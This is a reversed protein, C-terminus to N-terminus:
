KKGKQVSGGKGKQPGSQSVELQHQKRLAKKLVDLEKIFARLEWLTKALTAMTARTFAINDRTDKQARALELVVDRSAFKGGVRTRGALNGVRIDGAERVLDQLKLQLERKEQNLSRMWREGDHLQCRSLGLDVSVDDYSQNNSM